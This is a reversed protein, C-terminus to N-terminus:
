DRGQSVARGAVGQRVAYSVDSGEVLGGMRRRPGRRTPAGNDGAVMQGASRVRRCWRPRFVGEAHGDCEAVDMEISM